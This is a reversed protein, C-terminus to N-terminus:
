KISDTPNGKLFGAVGYGSETIAKRIMATDAVGPNYEIFAIGSAANAKVSKIGAIKSVNSQITQECGGCTMGTISVEISAVTDSDVAKETKKGTSNCAFAVTLVSILLISKFSHLIKM